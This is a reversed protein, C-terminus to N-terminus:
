HENPPPTGPDRSPNGSGLLDTTLFVALVAAAVGLGLAWTRSRSFKREQASGVLNARVTLPEGSWQNSQGNLYRVSSVRLVYSSDSSSQVVGELRAASSGISDGLAVRGRDNLDLVLTSGPAPTTTVPVSTYCGSLTSIGTLVLATVARWRRSGLAARAASRHRATMLM